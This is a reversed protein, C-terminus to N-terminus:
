RLKQAGDRPVKEELPIKEESGGSMELDGLMMNQFLTGHIGKKTVGRCLQHRSKRIIIM